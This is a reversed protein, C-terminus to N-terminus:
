PYPNGPHPPGSPRTGISVLMSLPVCTLVFSCSSTDGVQDRGRRRVFPATTAAAAITANATAPQLDLLPLEADAPAVVVAPAVDALTALSARAGPTVASAILTPMVYGSTLASFSTM